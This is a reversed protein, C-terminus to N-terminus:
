KKKKTLLCVDNVTALEYQKIAVNNQYFDIM